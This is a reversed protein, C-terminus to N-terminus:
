PLRETGDEEYQHVTGDPDATYCYLATPSALYNVTRTPASDATIDHGFLVYGDKDRTTYARGSTDTAKDASGAVSNADPFVAMDQTGRVCPTASGRFPNPISSLGNDVMMANVATIVNQYEARRAQDLGQGLSRGVNPIIVAALILVIPVALLVWFWVVARRSSSGKRSALEPTDRMVYTHM